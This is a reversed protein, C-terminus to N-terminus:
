NHQRKQTTRSVVVFVTGEYDFIWEEAEFPRILRHLLYLSLGRAGDMM